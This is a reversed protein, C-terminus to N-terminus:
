SKTVLSLFLKQFETTIDAPDSSIFKGYMYAFKDKMQERDSTTGFMIPIM